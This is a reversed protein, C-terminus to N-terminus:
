MGRLNVQRLTCFLAASLGGAKGKDCIRWSPAWHGHPGGLGDRVTPACFPNRYLCSVGLAKPTRLLGPPCWGHSPHCPVGPWASSESGGAGWFSSAPASPSLAGFPSIPTRVRAQLLFQVPSSAPPGPPPQPAHPSQGGSDVGGWGAECTVTALTPRRPARPPLRQPDLGSEGM